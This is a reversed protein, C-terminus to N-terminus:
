SRWYPDDLFFSSVKWSSFRGIKIFIPSLHQPSNSSMLKLAVQQSVTM